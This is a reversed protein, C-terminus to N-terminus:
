PDLALSRVRRAYTSKPYLLFFREASRRAAARDGCALLAEIRLVHAEENVPANPFRQQFDDLVTLAHPGNGVAIDASVECLVRAQAALSISAPGQPIPM